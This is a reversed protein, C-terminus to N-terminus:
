FFLMEFGCNRGCIQIELHLNELCKQPNKTFLSFWRDYYRLEWFSMKLNGTKLLVALETKVYYQYFSFFFEWIQSGPFWATSFVLRTEQVTSGSLLTFSTTFTGHWCMKAKLPVWKDGDSVSLSLNYDFIFMVFVYLDFYLKSLLHVKSSM